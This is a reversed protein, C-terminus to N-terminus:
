EDIILNEDQIRGQKTKTSGDKFSFIMKWFFANEEISPLNWQYHDDNTIQKDLLLNDEFDKVMLHIRIADSEWQFNITKRDSSIYHVDKYPFLLSVYNVKAMEGAYHKSQEAQQIPMFLENSRHETQAKSAEETPEVATVTDHTAPEFKVTDTQHVIYTDDNRGDNRNIAVLCIVIAAVSAAVSSIIWLFRRLSRRPAVKEIDKQIEIAACINKLDEVNEDREAMYALVLETEKPTTKGCLFKTLLEDSITNKDNM